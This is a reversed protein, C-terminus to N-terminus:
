PTVRNCAGPEATPEDLHSPSAKSLSRPPHSPLRHAAPQRRRATHCRGVSSTRNPPGHSQRVTSHRPRGTRAAARDAVRSPSQLGTLRTTPATRAAPRGLTAPPVARADARPRVPPPEAGTHPTVDQEQLLHDLRSDLGHLQDLTDRDLVQSRIPDPAVRQKPVEGDEPLGGGLQRSLQLLLESVDGPALRGTQAVPDHMAVPGDVKVDDVRRRLLLQRAEGSVQPAHEGGQGILVVSARSIPEARSLALSLRGRPVRDSLRAGAHGQGEVSEVRLSDSTFDSPRRNSGAGPWWLLQLDSPTQGAVEQKQRVM